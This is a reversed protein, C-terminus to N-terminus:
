ARVSGAKVAWADFADLAYLDEGLRERLARVLREGMVPEFALALRLLGSATVV